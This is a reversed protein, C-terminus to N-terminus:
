RTSGCFNIQIKFEAKLTDIELEDAFAPTGLFLLCIVCPVRM